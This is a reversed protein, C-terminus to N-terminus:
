PIGRVIRPGTLRTLWVPLRQWIRIMRDYKGSEPRLDGASGRRVYYQWVTLQSM